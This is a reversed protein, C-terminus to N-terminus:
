KKKCNSKEKQIPSCPAPKQLSSCPTPLYFILFPKEKSTQIEGNCGTSIQADSQSSLDGVSVLLWLCVMPIACQLRSVSLPPSLFASLVFFFFIGPTLLKPVLTLQLWLNLKQPPKRFVVCLSLFWEPSSSKRNWAKASPQNELYIVKIVVLQLLTVWRSVALWAQEVSPQSSAGKHNKWSRESKKKEKVWM